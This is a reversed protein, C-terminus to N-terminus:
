VADKVVVHWQFTVLDGSQLEFNEWEAKVDSMEFQCFHTMRGNIKRRVRITGAPWMTAKAKALGGVADLGAKITAPKPLLIRGQRNLAGHFKVEIADKSESMDIKIRRLAGVVGSIGSRRM